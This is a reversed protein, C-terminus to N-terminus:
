ELLLKLEHLIKGSKRPDIEEVERKVSREENAYIKRKKQASCDMQSYELWGVKGGLISEMDCDDNGAM